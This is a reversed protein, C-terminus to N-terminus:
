RVRMPALNVAGSPDVDPDVNGVPRAYAIAGHYKERASLPTDCQSSSPSMLDSPSDTHWFGLAHVVEHRVTGPRIEIGPCRCVGAYSFNITGPNAGVFSNGCITPGTFPVNHISQWHITIWGVVGDKTGTGREVIASLTGATVLSVTDRLIAETKDLTTADLATGADDVTKLYINPNQTWRRLPELSAPTEFGNRVFQRYFALDFAGGLAIANVAVDRSASAAVNVTRPVISSGTLRLTLAASPSTQASFTGSGDTTTTISGLSASLGGLPQGGNTATVHGTVTALSPVVPAPSPAPSPTTSSSGACGASLLAVLVILRGM